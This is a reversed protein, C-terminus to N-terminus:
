RSNLLAFVITVEALGDTSLVAAIVCKSQM